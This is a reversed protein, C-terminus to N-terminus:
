PERTNIHNNSPIHLSVTAGAGRASHIEISGGVSKALEHMDRLGRRGPPVQAPDFGIGDDHVSVASEGDDSKCCVVITRCRAHRVANNIGERAFRALVMEQECPIRGHLDNEFQIEVDYWAKIREVHEELGAVLGRCDDPSAGLDDIILGVENSAQHAMDHIRAMEARLGDQDSHIHKLANRAKLTIGFLLQSISDHLERSLHHREDQVILDRAFEASAANKIAVAAQQAFLEHAQQDDADFQRRRRYNVFMVGVTEGDAVLPIGAFSKINQLQVFTPRPKGNEAADIATQIALLPDQPADPSYYPRTERLLWTLINDQNLDLKLRYKDTSEGAIVPQDVTNSERHYRYVMVIHADLLAQASHAIEKLVQSTQRAAAIDQGVRHLSTLVDARKQMRELLRAHEIAMGVQSKFAKLMRLQDPTIEARSTRRYGAEIIGINREQRTLADVVEIPMFVRVMDEHGFESWIQRDFREDWGVLTETKGTRVVDASIDNSDLPHVASELWRDPINRGKVARITCTDDDVLSILAFEFGLKDTLADLISEL